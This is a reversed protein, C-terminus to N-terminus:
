HSRDVDDTMVNYNQVTPSSQEKVEAPPSYDSMMDRTRSFLARDTDSLGAFCAPIDGKDPSSIACETGENGRAPLLRDQNQTIHNIFPAQASETAQADEYNGRVPENYYSSPGAMIKNTEAVAHDEMQVRLSETVAAEQEKPINSYKSELAKLGEASLIPDAKHAVEHVIVDQLSMREQQGTDPSLYTLRGIQDLDLNIRPDSTAAKSLGGVHDTIEIKQGFNNYAAQTSAQFEPTTSLEALTSEIREKGVLTLNSTDLYDRYDFIRPSNAM